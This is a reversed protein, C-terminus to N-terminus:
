GEDKVTGLFFDNELQKIDEKRYACNKREEM